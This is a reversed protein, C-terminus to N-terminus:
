AGIQADFAAWAEDASDFGAQQIAHGIVTIELGQMDQLMAGDVEGPMNIATFLAPLVVDGDTELAGVTQAYRFEYTMTDDGNDTVSVCNWLTRDWGEVYNEPLFDEGLAAKLAGIRNITVLMRIYSEESGQVVTLTPDKVYTQGPILHYNNGRNRHDAVGDGDEDVITGDPNVEAEDLRIDVDGFTYTNVVHDTDIMYALTGIVAATIVLVSCLSAILVKTRMKM